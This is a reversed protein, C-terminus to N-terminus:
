TFMGCQCAASNVCSLHDAGPVMPAEGIRLGQSIGPSPCQKGPPGREMAALAKM